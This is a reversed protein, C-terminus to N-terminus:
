IFLCCWLRPWRSNLMQQIVRIWAGSANQKCSALTLLQHLTYHLASLLVYQQEPKQQSGADTQKAALAYFEALGVFTINGYPTKKFKLNTGWFLMMQKIKKERKILKKFQTYSIKHTNINYSAVIRPRFTAPHLVAVTGGYFHHAERQLSMNLPQFPVKATKTKDLAEEQDAVSCREYPSTHDMNHLYLFLSASLSFFNGLVMEMLVLDQQLGKGNQVEEALKQNM